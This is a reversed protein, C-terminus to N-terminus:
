FLHLSLLCALLLCCVFLCVFVCVSLVLVLAFCVCLFFFRLFAVVCVVYFACEFLSM